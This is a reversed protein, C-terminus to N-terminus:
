LASAWRSTSAAAQRTLQARAALTRLRHRPRADVAARALAVAISRRQDLRYGLERAASGCVSALAVRERPHVAARRDVGDRRRIAGEYAGTASAAFSSNETEEYGELGLMASEEFPVGVFEAVAAITAYPDATLDEYRV